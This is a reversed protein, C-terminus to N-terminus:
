KGGTKEKESLWKCFRLNFNALGNYIREIYTEQLSDFLMGGELWKISVLFGAMQEHRQPSDISLKKLIEARMDKYTKGTAKCVPEEPAAESAPPQQAAQDIPKNEPAQEKPSDVVAVSEADVASKLEESAQPATEEPRTFLQQVRNGDVGVTTDESDIIEEVTKMGFGIEPCHTSHLFSASRYMLMLRTITDWKDNRQVWGNKVAIAYSCYGECRIKTGKRIAWATASMKTVDCEDGVIDWQVSGEFVGSSNMLAILMKGQIGLKGYVPYSQEMWAFPDV